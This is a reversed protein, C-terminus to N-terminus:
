TAIVHSEVAGQSPHINAGLGNLFKTSASPSSGLVRQNLTVILARLGEFNSPKAGTGKPLTVQALVTGVAAKEDASYGFLRKGDYQRSLTVIDSKLIGKGFREELVTKDEPEIKFTATVPCFTELNMKRRHQKELWAPYQDPISLSVNGQAPNLRHLAQLFATKGSENKGVICTVDPQIAVEGSDIVNRFNKIQVGTLKM